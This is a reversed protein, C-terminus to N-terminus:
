AAKAFVDAVKLSKIAWTADASQTPIFVLAHVPHGIQASLYEAAKMTDEEHQADAVNHGACQYHGMVAFIRAGKADRIICADTVISECCAKQALIKGDPGATTCMYVDDARLQSQLQAIMSADSKHHRCDVCGVVFAVTTDPSHSM